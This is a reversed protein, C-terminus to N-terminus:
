QRGLLKKFSVISNQANLIAIGLPLRINIENSIFDLNQIMTQIITYFVSCRLM